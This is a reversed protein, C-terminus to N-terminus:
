GASTLAVTGLDVTEASGDFSNASNTTYLMTGDADTIIVRLSYKYSADITERDVVIEFPMPSTQDTIEITSEAAPEADLVTLDNVQVVIVNGAAFAAADAEIEGMIPLSTAIDVEGTEAMDTETDEAASDDAASDDTGADETTADGAADTAQDDDSSGCSAAGITLALAALLSLLKTM